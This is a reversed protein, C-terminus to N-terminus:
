AAKKRQSRLKPEPEIRETPAVAAEFDDTQNAITFLRAAEDMYDDLMQQYFSWQCEYAQIPTKCAVINQWLDFDKKARMQVFRLTDAGMAVSANLVDDCVDKLPTISAIPNLYQAIHETPITTNCRDPGNAHSKM